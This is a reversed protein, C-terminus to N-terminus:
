DISILNLIFAVAAEFDDDGVAVRTHRVPDVGCPLLRPHNEPSEQHWLFGGRWDNGFNDVDIRQAFLYAFLYCISEFLANRRSPTKWIRTMFFIVGEFVMYFIEVFDM